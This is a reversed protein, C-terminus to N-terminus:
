GYNGLLPAISSIQLNTPANPVPLPISKSATVSPASESGAADVATVYYYATAGAPATPDTYSQIPTAGPTPEKITGVLTWPGNASASRYVNIAAVVLPTGDTYTTPNQWTLTANGVLSTALAVFPLLTAIFLIARRM